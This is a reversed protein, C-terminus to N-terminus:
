LKGHKVTITSSVPSSEINTGSVVITGSQGNLQITITGGNALGNGSKNLPSYTPPADSGGNIAATAYFVETPVNITLTGPTAEVNVNGGPVLNVTQTPPTTFINHGQKFPGTPPTGTPAKTTGSSKASAYAIGGVIAAGGAALGVIWALRKQRSTM